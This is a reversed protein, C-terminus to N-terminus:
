GIGISPSTYNCDFDGFNTGNDIQFSLPYRIECLHTYNVPCLKIYNNVFDLGQNFSPAVIVNIDALKTIIKQKETKLTQLDDAVVLINAQMDCLVSGKSTNTLAIQALDLNEELDGIDRADADNATEEEFELDARTRKIVLMAKDKPITRVNIRLNPMNIKFNNSDIINPFKTINLLCGYTTKSLKNFIDVGINHLEFYGFKSSIIQNTIGLIPSLNKEVYSNKNYSIKYSPFLSSVYTYFTLERSARVGYHCITDYLGQEISLVHKIDINIKKISFLGKVISDIYSKTIEKFSVSEIDEISKVDINVVLISFSQNSTKINDKFIDPIDKYNPDWLRVTDILNNKIDEPTLEKNVSLLSFKFGPRQTSLTTLMSELKDIHNKIGSENMISYNISDVIYFASINKNNVLINKGLIGIKDETKNYVRM